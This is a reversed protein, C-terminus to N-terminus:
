VGDVPIPTLPVGIGFFSSLSFLDFGFFYTLFAAPCLQSSGVNDSHGSSSKLINQPSRPFSTVSSINDL